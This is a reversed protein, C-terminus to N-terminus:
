RVYFPQSYKKAAIEVRLIFAGPSLGSESPSWSVESGSIENPAWTKALRGMASFISIRLTNRGSRDMDSFRVYIRGDRVHLRFGEPLGPLISTEIGPMAQVSPLLLQRPDYHRATAWENTTIATDDESPFVDEANLTPVGSQRYKEATIATLVDEELAVLSYRTDIFGLASGLSFPMTKCLPYIQSNGITRAFQNGDEMRFISPTESREAKLTDGSWVSWKIKEEIAGRSLLRLEEGSGLSDALIAIEKRASDSGDRITAFIRFSSKASKIADNLIGEPPHYVVHATQGSFGFGFFPAIYLRSRSTKGELIPTVRGPVQGQRSYAQFSFDTPSLTVYPDTFTIKGSSASYQPTLEFGSVGQGLNFSVKAKDSFAHPFGISGKEAPILYRLRLKRFGGWAVPFISIDYNDERVWELIVPDRPRPPVPSNRDVVTEYEKRAQDKTKLKAKLIKDGNWLLMGVVTSNKELNLNGVIELADKYSAPESGGIGFEWNLEVDLYDPYVTINFEEKQIFATGLWTPGQTSQSRFIAHQLGIAHANMFAAALMAYVLRKYMWDEPPLLLYSGSLLESALGFDPHFGPNVMSKM